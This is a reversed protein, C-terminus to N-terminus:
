RKSGGFCNTPLHGVCAWWDSYPQQTMEIFLTELLGLDEVTLNVSLTSIFDAYQPLISLPKIRHYEGVTFITHHSDRSYLLNM